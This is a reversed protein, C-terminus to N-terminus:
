ICYIQIDINDCDRNTEQINIWLPGSGIYEELTWFFFLCVIYLPTIRLYRHLYM